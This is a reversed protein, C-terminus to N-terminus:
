LTLRPLPQEAAPSASCMWDFDRQIPLWSQFKGDFTSGDANVALNTDAIRALVAIVRGKKNDPIRM